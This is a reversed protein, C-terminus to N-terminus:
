APGNLPHRLRRCGEMKSPSFGSNKLWINHPTRKGASTSWAPSGQSTHVRQEKPPVRCALYGEQKKVVVHPHTVMSTQAEGVLRSM